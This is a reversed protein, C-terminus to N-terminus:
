EQKGGKKGIERHFEQGKEEKVKGGTERFNRDKKEPMM